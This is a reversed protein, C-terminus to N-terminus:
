PTRATLVPANVLPHPEGFGWVEDVSREGAPDIMTVM